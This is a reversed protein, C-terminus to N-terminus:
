EGKVLAKSEPFWYVFTHAMSDYWRAARRVEGSDQWQRLLKRVTGIGVGSRNAIMESTSKPCDALAARVKAATTTM